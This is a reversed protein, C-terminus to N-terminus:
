IIKLISISIWNKYNLNLIILIRLQISLSRKFSQSYSFSKKKYLFCNECSEVKNNKCNPKKLECARNWDVWHTSIDKAEMKEWSSRLCSCQNDFHRHNAFYDLFDTDNSHFFLCLSVLDSSSSAIARASLRQKKEIVNLVDLRLVSRNIILVVRRKSSKTDFISLSTSYNLTTLTDKLILWM